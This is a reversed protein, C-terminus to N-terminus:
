SLTGGVWNVHILIGDNWTDNNNLFMIGVIFM